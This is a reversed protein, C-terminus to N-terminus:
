ENKPAATRKFSNNPALMQWTGRGTFYMQGAREVSLEGSQSLTFHLEENRLSYLLTGTHCRESKACSMKIGENGVLAQSRYKLHDYVYGTLPCGYQGEPAM